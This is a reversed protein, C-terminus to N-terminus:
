FQRHGTGTYFPDNGRGGGPTTANRVVKLTPLQGARQLEAFKLAAQQYRLNLVQAADPASAAVARAYVDHVDDPKQAILEGSMTVAIYLLQRTALPIAGWNLGLEDTGDSRLPRGKILPHEDIPSRAM